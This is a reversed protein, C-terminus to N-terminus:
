LIFLFVFNSYLNHFEIYPDELLLHLLVELLYPRHALGEKMKFFSSNFFITTTFTRFSPIRRLGDRSENLNLLVLLFTPVTAGLSCNIDRMEPLSCPVKVPKDITPGCTHPASANRISFYYFSLRRKVNGLIKSLYFPSEVMGAAFSSISISQPIFDTLIKSSMFVDIM